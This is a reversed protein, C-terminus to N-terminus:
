PEVKTFETQHRERLAIREAEVDSSLYGLADFSKM